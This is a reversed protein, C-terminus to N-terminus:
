NRGEMAAKKRTPRAWSRQTVEGSM